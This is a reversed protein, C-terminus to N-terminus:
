DSILTYTEDGTDFYVDGRRVWKAIAERKATSEDTWPGDVRRLPTAPDTFEYLVFDDGERKLIADHPLLV